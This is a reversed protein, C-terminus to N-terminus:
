NLKTIMTNLEIIELSDRTKSQHFSQDQALNQLLFSKAGDWRQLAIMRHFKVIALTRALLIKDIISTPHQTRYMM